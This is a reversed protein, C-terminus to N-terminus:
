AETDVHQGAMDDCLLLFSTVCYQSNGLLGCCLLNETLLFLVKVSEDEKELAEVQSYM